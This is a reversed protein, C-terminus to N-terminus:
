FRQIVDSEVISTATTDHRGSEYMARAVQAPCVSRYKRFAGHFFLPGLVALAAGSLVEKLRFDSRRLSGQLLSPRFIRLSRLGLAQLAQEMEGKTRLYLSTAHTSAGISSVVSFSANLHKAMGGLKLVYDYDVRRFAAASGATQITSGLTCFVDDIPDEPSFDELTEFDIVHQVVKESSGKITRRGICHIRDYIDSAVLLQLLEDGVAGTGGALLATRKGHGHDKFGMELGSDGM